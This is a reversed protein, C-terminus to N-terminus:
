QGASWVGLDFWKSNFTWIMEGAVRGTRAGATSFVPGTVSSIGGSILLNNATIENGSFHDFTAQTAMGDLFGTFMLRGGLGTLGALASGGGVVDVTNAFKVWSQYDATAQSHRAVMANVITQMDKKNDEYETPWM